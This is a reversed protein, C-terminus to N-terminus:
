PSAQIRISGNSSNAIITSQPDTGVTGSLRDKKMTGSVTIPYDCSVSGNSTDANLEFEADSPLSIEIAGNSTDFNSTGPALSGLFEIKGNSTDALVLANEAAVKIRGNSTQLELKGSGEEIEIGGNSTQALVDGKVGQTSIGGNSTKLDLQAVEAPVTIRIEAGTNGVLMRSTRKAIVTLQSGEQTISVDINELDSEADAQSGGAGRKIVTVSIQGTSDTSIVIDGNFTAAEVTLNDQAPFVESVTEEATVLNLGIASCASLLLASIAIATLIFLGRAALRRPHYM